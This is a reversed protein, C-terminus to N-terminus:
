AEHDILNKEIECKGVDESTVEGSSNVWRAQYSYLGPTFAKSVDESIKHDHIGNTPDSFSGTTIEVFYEANANTVSLNTAIKFAIKQYTSINVANENSDVLTFRITRTDGSKIQILDSAM